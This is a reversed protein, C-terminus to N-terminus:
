ADCPEVHAKVKNTAEDYYGYPAASALMARFEQLWQQDHKRGSLEEVAGADLWHNANDEATSGIEALRTVSAGSEALVIAFARMNDSDQLSLDGNASVLIYM